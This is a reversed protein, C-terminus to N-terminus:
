VRVECRLVKSGVEAIGVDEIKALGNLANSCGGRQIQIGDHCLRSRVWWDIVEGDDSSASCNLDAARMTESNPIQKM